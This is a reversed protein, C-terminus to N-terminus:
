GDALRDAEIKKELMMDKVKMLRTTNARENEDLKMSISSIATELQPIMIHELANVRRRAKEIQEALLQSTKELEALRVMDLIVGSLEAVATDLEASTFAMGYGVRGAGGLVYDFHPVEVGMVNRTSVELESAEGGLLLSVSMQKPSTLAATMSFSGYSKVLAEEVRRRLEAAERVVDLFQRMLEDRKDRMLKHGRRAVALRSKLKKQEMRTPNVRLEAM